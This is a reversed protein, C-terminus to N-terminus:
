SRLEEERDFFEKELAPIVTDAKVAKIFDALSAILQELGTAGKEANSTRADGAYHEPHNGYWWIGSFNGPLHATRKMPDAPEAPVRDIHVLEPRISQMASTEFECAHGHYTTEFAADYAPKRDPTIRETQVYLSYDRKEALTFQALLRLLAWNGGHANHIIIKKFGNRGIEDCVDQLLQVLLMPKIAVTGPFCRAEFIQGFYFAPFVVAAEREAAKCAVHHGLYVDTGLPLHPGHRELVGLPLICTKTERVARAFDDATLNEWQM